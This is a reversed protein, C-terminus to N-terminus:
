LEQLVQEVSARVMDMLQDTTVTVTEVEPQKEEHNESPKEPEGADGDEAKLRLHILDFINKLDILEDGTPEYGLMTRLADDQVFNRYEKLVPKIYSYNKLKKVIANEIKEGDKISKGITAQINSPVSVLSTEYLESKSIRMDKTDYDMVGFGISVTKVFGGEVLAKAIKGSPTEAFEATGSLMKVGDLDKEKKINTLKGLVTSTVSGGINHSDILIPNKTYNDISIGDVDVVEGDRDKIEKTLVVKFGDLSIDGSITKTKTYEM